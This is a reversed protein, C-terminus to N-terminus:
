RLTEKDPVTYFFSKNDNSWVIDGRTDSIIEDLWEETELNKIRISYFNRGMTDMAVCVFRHDESVEPFFNLFSKGKGLENGDAIIEEPADLSNKKRCYIPYEGGEVVRSYYYYDDLKYPVSSDDEKIRAKMENFLKEQFAKTHALMTDCYENETTLYNIVATDEREKLWHYNDTRKKGHKAVIEFPKKEAVPPKVDPYTTNHNMIDTCSTFYFPITLILILKSFTKM